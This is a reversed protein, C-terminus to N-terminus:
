RSLSSKEYSSRLISIVTDNYNKRKFLDIGEPIAFEEKKSHEIIIIGKKDLLEYKIIKKIIPEVLGVDYPPDLFILNFKEMKLKPLIQLADGVIVQSKDELGTLNKRLYSVIKRNSEIFTVFTAGRSLAEIGVAGTGAFIDCMKAQDIIDPFNAEIINFIAGRIKDTTPRLIGKPYILRKGKLTGAIIKM